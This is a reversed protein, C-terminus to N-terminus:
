LVIVWYVLVLVIRLMYVMIFYIVFVLGWPSLLSQTSNIYTLCHLRVPVHILVSTLSPSSLLRFLPQIFTPFLSMWTLFHWLFFGKSQCNLPFLLSKGLLVFQQQCNGFEGIIIPSDHVRFFRCKEGSKFYFISEFNNGPEIINPDSYKHLM